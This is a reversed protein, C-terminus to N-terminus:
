YVASWDDGASNYMDRLRIPIEDHHEVWLVRTGLEALSNEVAHDINKSAFRKLIAFHRQINERIYELDKGEEKYAQYREKASYHLLRRINDDQMSLGIFLCSHERLMHLFTYNYLSNPSNFFDFYEHESLVLKDHSEDKMIGAKADFRLFGHMHYVNIRSPIPSKSSREITKLLLPEGYRAQVYARFIADLNFNMIGHVRRNIIFTSDVKSPLACLAAVARLTPNNSQIHPVLNGWDRWSVTRLEEPLTQYLCKRVLEPFPTDAPCQAKLIGAITPMNFGASQMCDVFDNSNGCEDSIRVLLSVWTPLGSAVSVGAGFALTIGMWSYTDNLKDWNASM